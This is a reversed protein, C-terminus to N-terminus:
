QLSKWYDLAVRSGALKGSEHIPAENFCYWWGGSYGRRGSKGSEHIPAENFRVMCAEGVYALDISGRNM